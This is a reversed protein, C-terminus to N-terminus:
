GNKITKYFDKALNDSEKRFEIVNEPGVNEQFKILQLYTPIIDDISFEEGELGQIDHLSLYCEGIYDKEFIDQDMITFKIISSIHSCQSPDIHYTFDEDYFPNLTKKMVKTTKKDINKFIFKPMLDITVYPDSLGNKDMSPLNQASIIKLTLTSDRNNYYSKVTLIGYPSDLTMNQKELRKLLIFDIIDKTDMQFWVLNNTLAIYKPNNSLQNNSLGEGNAFFFDKFINLTEQLRKCHPQSKTKNVDFGIKIEDIIMLYIYKLLQKFPAKLMNQNCILLTENLYKILPEIDGKEDQENCRLNQFDIDTDNKVKEVLEKILIEIKLDIYDKNSDFINNIDTSTKIYVDDPYVKKVTQLSDKLSLDEPSLSLYYLLYQMNNVLLCQKTVCSNKGKYIIKNAKPIFSDAYYVTSLHQIELIKEIFLLSVIRNYWHLDNWIRKIQKLCYILNIISSSITKNKHKIPELKDLEIAMNMRININSEALNFWNYLPVIFWLFYEDMQTSKPDTIQSSYGIMIQLEYYIEFYISDFLKYDKDINKKYKELHILFNDTKINRYENMEEDLIKSFDVLFLKTLVNTVIEIYNINSSRLFIDNYYKQSKYLEFNIKMLLKLINGMNYDDQNKEVHHKLQFYKSECSKKIVNSIEISCDKVFPCCIKFLKMKYMYELCSLLTELRKNSAKNTAPYNCDINIISTLSNHIFSKFSESLINEEDKNIINEDYTYDLNQLLKLILSFDLSYINHAYSYAEWKCLAEQIETIDGQIAHQHMIVMAKSSLNGNWHYSSLYEPLRRLEYEIFIKYLSIHQEIDSFNDEISDNTDEKTSLYLKLRVRGQVKSKTTRGKLDYWRDIGNSPINNLNLTICGLFDDVNQDENTRASQVIQKFYRGMGKFGQIHNLKKAAESVSFDDDHDWIDLHLQDKNIDQIICKFKENWKPSLTKYQVSSVHIYNAPIASQSINQLINQVDLSKKTNRKWQHKHLDPESIPECVSIDDKRDGPIIGLMCYPDSYGNVDKSELDRAEILDINLVLTPPKEKQATDLLREHTKDDIKFAEQCYTYLDQPYKLKDIDIKGLKHEITYLVEIYLKEKQKDPIQEVEHIPLKLKTENQEAMKLENEYSPIQDYKHKKLLAFIKEFFEHDSQPIRSDTYNEPDM